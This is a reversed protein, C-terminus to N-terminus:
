GIEIETGQGCRELVHLLDARAVAVCGDTSGYGPHAIHLFIASGRGPVVPSDNVGIVALVDYLADHRWLAESHFGHPTTVRRNYAPDAPDDSWGDQAGIASVPLRTVPAPGRDSRHLVERLPFVGAPTAGDGERKDARVGTRGVACRVRVAGFALVGRAVVIRGADRPVALAAAAFAARRTLV